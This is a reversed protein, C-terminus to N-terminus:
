VWIGNHQTIKFDWKKTKSPSCSRFCKSMHRKTHQNLQRRVKFLKITNKLEIKSQGDLVGLTFSIESYSTSFLQKPPVLCHLFLQLLPQSHVLNHISPFGTVSIIFTNSASTIPISVKAGFIFVLASSSWHLKMM